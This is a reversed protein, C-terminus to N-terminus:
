SRGTLWRKIVKSVANGTAYCVNTKVSLWKIYFRTPLYYLSIQLSPM